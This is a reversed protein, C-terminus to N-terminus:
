PPSILDMKVLRAALLTCLYYYFRGAFGEQTDFLVNIFYGEIIFLEVESDDPIVTAAAGSDGGELFSIEGFIEPASMKGLLQKAKEIRCSGKNIQYLRQYIQGEEIITQNKQFVVAKAGGILFKWDEPTLPLLPQHVVKTSVDETKIPNDSTLPSTQGISNNENTLKPDIETASKKKEWQKIKESKQQVQPSGSHFNQCLGNILHLADKFSQQKLKLTMTAHTPKQKPQKHQLYNLQLSQSGDKSPKQDSVINLISITPIVEKNEIGFTKAYFCVYKQM